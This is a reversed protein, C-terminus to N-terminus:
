TWATAASEFLLAVEILLTGHRAQQIREVRLLRAIKARSITRVPDYVILAARSGLAAVLADYMQEVHASELRAMITDGTGTVIVDGAQTVLASDGEVGEQDASLVGRLSFQHSTTVRQPASGLRDWAGGITSVITGRLSPTGLDAEANCRPLTVGGFTWYVWAM